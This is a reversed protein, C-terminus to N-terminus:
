TAEILFHNRSFSTQLMSNNKSTLLVAHDMNMTKDTSGAEKGFYSTVVFLFDSLFKQLLPRHNRSFSTQANTPARHETKQSAFRAHTYISSSLLSWTKPNHSTVQVQLSHNATVTFLHAPSLVKKQRWPRCFLLCRPTAFHDNFVCTMDEKARGQKGAELKTVLKILISDYGDYKYCFMM